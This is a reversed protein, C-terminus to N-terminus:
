SQGGHKMAPLKPSSADGSTQRQMSDQQQRCQAIWDVRKKTISEREIRGSGHSLRTMRQWLQRWSSEHRKSRAAHMEPLSSM